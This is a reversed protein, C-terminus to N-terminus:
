CDQTLILHSSRYPVGPGTEPDFRVMKIGRDAVNGALPYFLAGLQYPDRIIVAGGPRVISFLGELTDAKDQHDSNEMSVGLLVAAFVADFGGDQTNGDAQECRSSIRQKDRSLAIIRNGLDFAAQDREFCTVTCDTEAVLSLATLPLPGSGIVAVHRAGELVALVPASLTWYSQHEIMAHLAEEAADMVLFARAEAIEKDFEYAARIQHLKGFLERIETDHLVAEVLVADAKQMITELEAYLPEVLRYWPKIARYAMGTDDASLYGRTLKENRASEMRLLSLREAYFATVRALDRIEKLKKM